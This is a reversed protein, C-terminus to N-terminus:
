SQLIRLAIFIFKIPKLGVLVHLTLIGTLDENHRNRYGPISQATSILNAHTADSFSAFAASVFFSFIIM